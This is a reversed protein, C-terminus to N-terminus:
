RGAAGTTAEKKQKILHNSVALAGGQLFRVFNEGVLPGLAYLGSQRVSEHTAFNIALPNRKCDIMMGPHIGINLQIDGLFSLDPHAGICIVICSVQPFFLSMKICVNQVILFDNTRFM